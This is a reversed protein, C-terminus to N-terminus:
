GVMTAMMMNTEEQHRRLVEMCQAKSAEARDVKAKLEAIYEAIDKTRYALDAVYCFMFANNKHKVYRGAGGGATIYEGRCCAAVSHYNLGYHAAAHKASKFVEGTTICVVAKGKKPIYTEPVVEFNARTAKITRAM